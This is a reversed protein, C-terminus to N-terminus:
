KFFRLIFRTGNKYNADYILDANMRKILSKSIYLGLGTGEGSTKTTSFPEFLTARISDPLGPGNDEFIVDYSLAVDMDYIKLRLRM